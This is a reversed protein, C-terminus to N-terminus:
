LLGGIFDNFIDRIKDLDEPFQRQYNIFEPHGQIGLANTNRYYVIECEKPPSMENDEGDLHFESHNEAWGIVRYDSEKLNFPYQAQHHLSTIMLDGYKDTKVNHVSKEDNQHQILRGGSLACILQAGRCTGYIFKGLKKAENFAEIEKIDRAINSYTRRGKPENYFRPDIDSGGTFLVLDSDKLNNVIVSNPIWNAYNTGGGVVFIKLTKM